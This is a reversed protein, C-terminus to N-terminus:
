QSSTSSSGAIKHTPNPICKTAERGRELFHSGRLHGIMNGMASIFVARGFGMSLTQVVEGSARRQVMSFPANQPDIMPAWIEALRRIRPEMSPRSLDLPGRSHAFENRISRVVEMGEYLPQCILQQLYCVKILSSPTALPGNCDLLESADTREAKGNRKIQLLKKVPLHDYWMVGLLSFLHESLMLVTMHDPSVLAPLLSDTDLLEKPLPLKAM